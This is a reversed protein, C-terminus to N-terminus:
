RFCTVVYAGCETSGRNSCPFSVVVFSSFLLQHKSTTVVVVVVGVSLITKPRASSIRKKTRHCFCTTKPQASFQKSPMKWKTSHHVDHRKHRRGHRRWLRNSCWFRRISVNNLTFFSGSDSCRRGNFFKQFFM